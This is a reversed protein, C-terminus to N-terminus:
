RNKHESTVSLCLNAIELQGGSFYEGKSSHIRMHNADKPISLRRVVAGAGNGPTEVYFRERQHSAAEPSLGEKQRWQVSLGDWQPITGKFNEIECYDQAILREQTASSLWDVYLHTMGEFLNWNLAFEVSVTEKGGPIQFVESIKGNTETDLTCGLGEAVPTWAPAYTYPESVQELFIKDIWLLCTGERQTILRLRVASTEAMTRFSLEHYTWGDPNAPAPFPSTISDVYDRNDDLLDIQLYPAPGTVEAVRTSYKLVYETYPKVLLPFHLYFSTSDYKSTDIFKFSQYDGLKTTNDLGAFKWETCVMNRRLFQFKGGKEFVINQSYEEPVFPSIWHYNEVNRVIASLRWEDLYGYLMWSDKGSWVRGALTSVRSTTPAPYIIPSDFGGLHLEIRKGNIYMQLPTDEPNGTLSKSDAPYRGTRRSDLTIALHNWEDYRFIEPSEISAAYARTMTDDGSPGCQIASGLNRGKGWIWWRLKNEPQTGLMALCLGEGTASASPINVWCEITMPATIEWINGCLVPAVNGNGALCQGYSARGGDEFWPASM